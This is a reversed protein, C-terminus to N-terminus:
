AHTPALLYTVIFPSQQQRIVGELRGVLSKSGVGAPFMCSPFELIHQKVQNPSCLGFGGGSTHIQKECEQTVTTVFHSPSVPLSDTTQEPKTEM